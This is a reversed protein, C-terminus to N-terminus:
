QAQQMKIAMVPDIMNVRKLLENSQEINDAAHMLEYACCLIDLALKPFCENLKYRDIYGMTINIHEIALLTGSAKNMIKALLVRIECEEFLTFSKISQTLLMIANNFEGNESLMTAEALLKDCQSQEEVLVVDTKDEKVNIEKPGKLGEIWEITDASAFASGDAFCLRKVDPYRHEFDLVAAEIVVLINELGLNKIAIYSYYTLDLWFCYQNVRAECFVIIDKHVGREIIADCAQVDDVSPAQVQTIFGSQIEPSQNVGGWVAARRLHYSITNSIDDELLTDASRLLLSMGVKIDDDPSSMDDLIPTLVERKNSSHHDSSAEASNELESAVEIHGADVLGAITEELQIVDDALPSDQISEIEIVKVPLRKISSILGRMIPTDDCQEDLLAEFESILEVAKDILVPDIDPGEYNETWRYSGDLWWQVSNMRGKLRKVAPWASDWFHEVLGKFLSSSDIIGQFGVLQIRAAGWYAAVQFHKSKQSLLTYGLNEVTKWNVDERDASYSNHKEIELKLNEFDNDVSINMGAPKDASIPTVGLLSLNDIYILANVGRMM